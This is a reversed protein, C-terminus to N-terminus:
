KIKGLPVTQSEAFDKGLARTRVRPLSRNASSTYAPHSKGLTVSPLPKAPPKRGKASHGHCEAYSLIGITFTIFMVYGYPVSAMDLIVNM